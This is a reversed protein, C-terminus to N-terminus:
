NKLTEEISKLHEIAKIHEQELSTKEKELERIKVTHAHLEDKHAKKLSDIEETKQKISARSQQLEEEKRTIEEELRKREEMNESVITAILSQLSRNESILMQM